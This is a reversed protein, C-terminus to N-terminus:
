YSIGNLINRIWLEPPGKARYLLVIQAIKTSPMMLSLEDDADDYDSEQNVHLHLSMM